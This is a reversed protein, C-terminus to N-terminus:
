NRPNKSDALLGHAQKLVQEVHISTICPVSPENSSRQTCRWNCGYCEMKHYAVAIHRYRRRRPYPLFRGFHGGGLIVVCPTLTLAAYHVAFSDNSIILKASAILELIESATTQGCLNIAKPFIRKIEEARDTDFRSGCLFFQHDVISMKELLEAFNEVPWEKVRSSSGCFVLVLKKREESYANMLRLNDTVRGFLAISFKEMFVSEHMTFPRPAPSWLSSYLKGTEALLLPEINCADSQPAIKRSAIILAATLEGLPWERSRTPQVLLDYRLKVVDNLVRCRYLSSVKFRARDVTVVNTFFGTARAFPGVESVCILSLSRFRCAMAQFVKVALFFDGIADMKVVIAHGDGDVIGRKPLLIRSQLYAWRFRLLEVIPRVYLRSRRFDVM